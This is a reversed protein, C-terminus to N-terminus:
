TQPVVFCYRTVFQRWGQAATRDVEAVVRQYVTAHAAYGSFNIMTGVVTLTLSIILKTQCRVGCQGPVM